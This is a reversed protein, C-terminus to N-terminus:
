LGKGISKWGDASPITHITLKLGNAATDGILHKQCVRLKDLCVDSSKYGLGVILCGSLCSTFAGYNAGSMDFGADVDSNWKSSPVCSTGDPNGLYRGSGSTIAGTCSIMALAPTERGIPEMAEIPGAPEGTESALIPTTTEHSLDELGGCAAVGVLIGCFLYPTLQM